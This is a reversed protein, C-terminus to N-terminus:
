YRACNKQTRRHPSVQLYFLIFNMTQDEWHLMSNTVTSQLLSVKIKWVVKMCFCRPDINASLIQITNLLQSKMTLIKRLSIFVLCFGSGIRFKLSLEQYTNWVQRGKRGHESEDEPLRLPPGVLQCLKGGSDAGSNCHFDFRVDIVLALTFGLALILGNLLHIQSELM